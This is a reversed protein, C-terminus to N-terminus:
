TNADYHLVNGLSNAAGLPFVWYFDPPTYGESGRTDTIARGREQDLLYKVMEEKLSMLRLLKMFFQEVVMGDINFGLGSTSGIFAMMGDIAMSPGFYTRASYIITDVRTITCALLIVASM